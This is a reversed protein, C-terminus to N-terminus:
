PNCLQISVSAGEGKGEGGTRPSLTLSLPDSETWVIELRNIVM